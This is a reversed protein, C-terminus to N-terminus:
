VEKYINNESIQSGGAESKLYVMGWCTIVAEGEPDIFHGRMTDPDVADSGGWWIRFDGTNQIIREKILANAPLILFDADPAPKPAPTDISSGALTVELAGQIVARTDTVPGLSLVYEIEMAADSTNEFTVRTYVAPEYTTKDQSLRVCPYGTGAKIFNSIGNDMSVLVDANSTNSYIAVYSGRFPVHKQSHAPITLRRSQQQNSIPMDSDNRQRQAELAVITATVIAQIDEKSLNM